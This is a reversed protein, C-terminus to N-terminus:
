RSAAPRSTPVQAFRSAARSPTSASTTPRASSRSRAPTAPTLMSRACCATPAANSPLNITITKTVSAGDQDTAKVSLAIPAGGIVLGTAGAKVTIEGTDANVAFQTSILSFKITDGADPDVAKVFGVTTGAAPAAAVSMSHDNDAADVVDTPARNPLLPTDFPATAPNAIAANLFADVKTMAKTNHLYDGIIEAVMLVNDGKFTAVFFDSVAQSPPEGYLNTWIQSLLTAQPLSAKTGLYSSTLIILSGLEKLAPNTIAGDGFLASALPGNYYFKIDSGAHNTDMDVAWAKVYTTQADLEALNKPTKGFVALDVSVAREAFLRDTGLNITMTTTEM